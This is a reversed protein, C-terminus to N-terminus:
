GHAGCELAIASGIALITKYTQEIPDILNHTIAAYNSPSDGPYTFPETLAYGEMNLANVPYADRLLAVAEPIRLSFILEMIDERSVDNRTSFKPVRAAMLIIHQLLALRV